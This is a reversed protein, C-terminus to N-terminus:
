PYFGNLTSNWIHCDESQRNYLLTSLITVVDSHNFIYLVLNRDWFAMDLNMLHSVTLEEYLPPPPTSPNLSPQNRLWTNEV